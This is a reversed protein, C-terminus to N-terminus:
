LPLDIAWFGPGLFVLSVLVAIALIYFELTNDLLEPKRIKIYTAAIIIFLLALATLQTFLGLVLFIGGIIEIVSVVWFSIMGGGIEKFFNIRRYKELWIKSAGFYIFIIGIISRLIFPALLWFTLLDPFISLM